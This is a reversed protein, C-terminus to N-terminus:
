KKFRRRGYGVLGALGSGLLLMTGPEPVPTLFGRIEGAPRFTTHINFYAKGDAMAAALAAEAGDVTGGNATIYSPNWSAASTLDFIQDMNGSNVGLPFGFFSPTQTAVGAVGTGPVATPAHIHAATTIGTLGSFTANVHLLHVDTDIVVLAYGNGPSANPPDENLGSLNAEYTIPIAEASPMFLVASALICIVFLTKKM